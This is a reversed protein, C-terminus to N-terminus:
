LHMVKRAFFRMPKYPFSELEREALALAERIHIGQPCNEECAGCQICESAGHDRTNIMYWYKSSLKSKIATDNLATFCMPINVDQPCPMCYGCGTCPVKTAERMAARVREYLELETETLANPLADTACTINEEIMTQEGMGSLVCLVEPHNLVWRLGWDAASRQMPADEFVHQATAPLGNVLTGGRLPEMVIVPLGKAAAYGLGKTGAQNFEDYYNYQIMCFDWDYADVIEIFDNYGGHFSFGLNKIAGSRKKEEIWEIIGFDILRKWAALNTLMHILYYDIYETQLRTIQTIFTREIDERKRIMNHPLKTAINVKDRMGDKALIKGLLTESGPYLYATDFYNVGAEISYRIQREVEEPDRNFRMCGFGLASIQDGNKSNSRY